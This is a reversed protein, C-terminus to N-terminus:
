SLLARLEADGIPLRSSAKLLWRLQAGAVSDPVQTAVLGPVRAPPTAPSAVASVPLVLGGVALALLWSWRGVGGTLEEGKARLQRPDPTKSRTTM